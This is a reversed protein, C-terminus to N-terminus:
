LSNVIPKHINPYMWEFFLYDDCQRAIRYSVNTPNNIWMDTPSHVKQTLTSLGWASCFLRRDFSFLTLLIIIAENWHRLPLLPVKGPLKSIAWSQTAQWLFQLMYFSNLYHLALRLVLCELLHCSNLLSSFIDQSSNRNGTLWLRTRVSGKSFYLHSIDSWWFPFFYLITLITLSLYQFSLTTYGSLSFGCM